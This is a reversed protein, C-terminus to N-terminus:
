EAELVTTGTSTPPAPSASPGATGGGGGIVPLTLTNAIYDRLADLDEQFALAKATGGATRIEVKGGARLYVAGGAATGFIVVEGPALEIGAARLAAYTKEDRVAIIVPARAGGVNVVIAEPKGSAPPRAAYGVGQFLEVTPAEDEGDLGRLGLLKWASAAATATVSFRRVLGRLKRELPDTARAHDRATRGSM